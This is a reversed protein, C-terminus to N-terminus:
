YVICLLEGGLNYKLAQAGSLYGKTTSLVLLVSPKYIRLLSSKQIQIVRSVKSIRFLGSIVPKRGDYKLFIRFIPFNKENITEEVGFFYGEKIFFFILKKLKRSKPIDVFNKKARFGNQIGSFFNSFTDIM